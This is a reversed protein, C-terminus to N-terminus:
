IVHASIAIEPDPDPDELEVEFDVVEVEFDVVEVEFTVVEVELVKVVEFTEVVVVVDAVAQVWAEVTATV